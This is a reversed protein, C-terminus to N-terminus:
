WPVRLLIRDLEMVTQYPVQETDQWLVRWCMTLATSFITTAERKGEMDNVASAEGVLGEANSTIGGM